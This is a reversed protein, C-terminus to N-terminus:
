KGHRKNNIKNVDDLSSHFNGNNDEYRAILPKEVPTQNLWTAEDDIGDYRSFREYTFNNESYELNLQGSYEENFRCADEISSHYNGHVDKYLKRM